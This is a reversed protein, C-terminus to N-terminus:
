DYEGGWFVYSIKSPKCEIVPASDSREHRKGRCFHIFFGLGKGLTNNKCINEMFNMYNYTLSIRYSYNPM